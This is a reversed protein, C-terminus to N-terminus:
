CKVLDASTLAHFGATQIIQGAVGQVDEVRLIDVALERGSAFCYAYEVNVGAKDFAELLPLLGGPRDPVEVAYVDVLRARYGADNLAAIAKDPNDAIIRAVGYDTTDAVTLAQMSVEALALTRCLAALRGTSNELFVTIQKVMKKGKM